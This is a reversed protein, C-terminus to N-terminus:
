RQIKNVCSVVIIIISARNLDVENLQIESSYVCTMSLLCWLVANSPVTYVDLDM